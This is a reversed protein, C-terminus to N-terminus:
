TLQLNFKPMLTLSHCWCLLTLNWRIRWLTDILSKGEKDESCQGQLQFPYKYSREAIIGGIYKGVLCSITCDRQGHRQKVACKLQSSQPKQLFDALEEGGAEQYQLFDRQETSNLDETCNSASSAAQCVVAVTFLMLFQSCDLCFCATHPSKLGMASSSARIVVHHKSSTRRPFHPKLVCAHVKIPCVPQRWSNLFCSLGHM